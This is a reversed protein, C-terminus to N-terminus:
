PKKIPARESKKGRARRNRSGGATPELDNMRVVRWRKIVGDQVCGPVSAGLTGFVSLFVPENVDRRWERRKKHTGMGNEGEAGGDRQAGAAGILSQVDAWPRRLIAWHEM